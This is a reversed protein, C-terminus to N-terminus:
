ASRRSIDVKLVRARIGEDALEGLRRKLAGVPVRQMPEAYRERWDAISEPTFGTKVLSSIQEEILKERLDPPPNRQAACTTTNKPSM